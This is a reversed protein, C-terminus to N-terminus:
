KLLGKLLGKLLEKGEDEVSRPAQQPVTAPQQPVPASPATATPPAAAPPPRRKRLANILGAPIQPQVKPDTIPGTIVVPIMQGALDRKGIGACSQVLEAEARYDLRDRPLDIIGAGRARM